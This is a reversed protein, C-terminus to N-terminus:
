FLIRKRKCLEDSKLKIDSIVLTIELYIILQCPNRGGWFTSLDGQWPKKRGKKESLLISKLRCIMSIRDREVCFSGHSSWNTRRLLKLFHRNHSPKREIYVYPFLKCLALCKEYLKSTAFWHASLVLFENVFVIDLIRQHVVKFESLNLPPRCTKKWRKLQPAIEVSNM